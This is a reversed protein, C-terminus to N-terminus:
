KADACFMAFGSSSSSWDCKTPVPEQMGKFGPRLGVSSDTLRRLTVRNLKLKKKISGSDTM